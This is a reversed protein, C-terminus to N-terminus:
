EHIPGGTEQQLQKEKRRYVLLYAAPVIFVTLIVSSTLGGIIARAMPAYQESGTGMKLAMPVMGIITALSTMLIPRLRVRCASIIADSASLGQGRLRHAFDVILISNSGAIGVLMLVGVLSMVNLTTGTLPLVILVGIFAMPIALLILIPDVFSKFQATLVLYLLVFALIFGRAFSKFSRNMSNVMGRLTIRVSTPTQTSSVIKKVESTIGKLNEGHPSVYVDIVRQIQYHDIETPGEVHTLNVVTALTTPQKLNPAKLPIDELDSLDQVSGPGQTPYQVTLFYDNGNKPNVWYNPAIMENSDLATIVNSVIAKQSLGLEAAHVRNIDLRIAPYDLDQPIYVQAADPLKRIRSALQQAIEFDQRYNDGSVQVDIPAPMGSNLISSEMSGSYIFSRLMPFNRKLAQKVRHMYTFSSTRHDSTLQTRVLAEYEASNKTFIASYGNKKGVDSVTMKFDHPSVIHRIQQEVRAVYANAVQIRSGTPAKLRISFQGADTRPFFAVGIIPYLFLSAVFLATLGIVTAWPKAVARRVWHEYIDLLKTFGRNFGTNFRAWLSSQASAATHVDQRFFKSCFLPIVTMAVFFSVILTLCFSLALATFLFKSVGTLITVPLFAIVGVLTAALVALTVETAGSESAQSPIEGMEVHRVINELSIVSNDIVRSFALALGGLVMTNVTSGMLHLIVFAGLASLPISLLVAGTARFNGLFLLIMLATLVLGILAEHLVTHIAEKVFASQDFLVNVKLDHPINVLHKLLHRVQDVIQITNADGGQKMVPIYVAKQGNIRVLERQIESAEEAHGIEGVSTWSNGQTKIPIKNLDSIKQVLSNSYVFYNYPGLEVDGAPIILSQRNIARVVDMPSLQRSYLKQPNVYVMVQRYKGGFPPPLSAGKVVAIQDRINFQAQDHLESQNLGKGHVAILCVPMSSAGFKLVVPPLTGKPMRRLDALTLNSIEAADASANTNPQFYVRILSLGQSSTSTIHNIGSGLTFFREFRDTIDHEVDSPPMGSFFTAVVVEPLNIPPFLDVPMRVLSVIGLICIALGVVVIFYPNRISFRSM